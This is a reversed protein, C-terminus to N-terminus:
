KVRYGNTKQTFAMMMLYITVKNVMYRLYICASLFTIYM